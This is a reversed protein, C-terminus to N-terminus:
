SGTTPPAQQEDQEDEAIRRSAQPWDAFPFPKTESNYTLFAITQQAFQALSDGFQRLNANNSGTIISFLFQVLTVAVLVMEAIEYVVLFLIMFLGRLWQKESKINENIDSM